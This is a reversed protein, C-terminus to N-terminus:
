GPVRGRRCLWWRFFRHGADVPPCYMLPCGGVIPEVGQSRCLAVADDSVSGDGFSRHFWVHKVGRALAARAVAGADKPHTVVMVAHVPGPVSELQPYCAQGELEAAHPNVPIPELGRERLRRFIANAPASGSRSVGAVVIPKGALFATVSAPVTRM